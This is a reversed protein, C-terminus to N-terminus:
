KRAGRPKSISSNARRLAQTERALETLDARSAPGTIQLVSAGVGPLLRSVTSSPRM